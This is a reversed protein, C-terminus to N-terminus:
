ARLALLVESLDDPGSSVLVMHCYRRMQALVARLPNDVGALVIGAVTAGAEAAIRGFIGARAASSDESALLVAMDVGSLTEHADLHDGQLDRMVATGGDVSSAVLVSLRDSLRSRCSSAVPIAPSDLAVLVTSRECLVPAPIRFAAEHATAAM